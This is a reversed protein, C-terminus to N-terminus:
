CGPPLPPHLATRAYVCSCRCRDAALPPLPLPLSLSLPLARGMCGGGACRVNRNMWLAFDKYTPWAKQNYMVLLIEGKGRAQPYTHTTKNSMGCLADSGGAAREDFCAAGDKFVPPQRAPYPSPAESGM